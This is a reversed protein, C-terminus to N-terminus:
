KEHRRYATLSRDIKKIANRARLVKKEWAGRRAKLRAIKGERVQQKTPAVVTKNQPVLAGVLWHKECVRRALKLELALRNEEVAMAKALDSCIGPWGSRRNVWLSYGGDVSAFRTPGTTGMVVPGDWVEGSAARILKRVGKVTEPTSPIPL